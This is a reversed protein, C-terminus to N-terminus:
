LSVWTKRCSDSSQRVQGLREIPVASGGTSDYIPSIIRKKLRRVPGYGAALILGIARFHSSGSRLIIHWRRDHLQSPLLGAAPQM